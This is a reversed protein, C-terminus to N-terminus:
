PQEEPCRFQPASIVAPHALKCMTWQVDLTKSAGPPLEACPGLVEAEIYWQKFAAATHDAIQEESPGNCWCEANVEGDPYPLDPQYDFSLTFAYTDEGVTRTYGLWRAKDVGVKGIQGMYAVTLLGRAPDPQWQPNDAAGHLLREGAAFRSDPALPLYLRCDPDPQPPDGRRADLQAIDWIAWRVPQDGLNTMEIHLQVTSSNAALTLRRTIQTGTYPDPPSRMALTALGAEVHSDIVTFPGGDLVPDPPGPWEHPGRWGQPAPWTKDGGYNKWGYPGREVHQAATFRQGALEPDIYFYQFDGLSCAIVRGGISPVAVLSVRGNSLRLGDDWGMFNVQEITAEAM